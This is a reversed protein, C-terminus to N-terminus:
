LLGSPAPNPRTFPFYNLETIDDSKLATEIQRRLVSLGALNGDDRQRTNAIVVGLNPTLPGPTTVPRYPVM